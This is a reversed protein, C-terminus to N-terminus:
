DKFDEPNIIDKPNLQYGLLPKACERAAVTGTYRCDEDTKPNFTTVLCETVDLLVGPDATLPRDRLYAVAHLLCLSLIPSTKM